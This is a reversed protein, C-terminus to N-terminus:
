QADILLAAWERMSLADAADAEALQALLQEKLEQLASIKAM